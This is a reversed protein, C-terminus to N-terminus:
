YHLVPHSSVVSWIKSPGHRCVSYDGDAWRREIPAWADAFVAMDFLPMTLVGSTIKAWDVAAAWPGLTALSEPPPTEILALKTSLIAAMDRWRPITSSTHVDTYIARKTPDDVLLQPSGRV